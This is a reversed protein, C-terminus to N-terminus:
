LMVLYATYPTRTRRKYRCLLTDIGSLTLGTLESQPMDNVLEGWEGSANCM